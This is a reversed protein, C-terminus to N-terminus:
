YQKLREITSCFFLFNRKILYKPFNQAINKTSLNIHTESCARLLQLILNSSVTVYNKKIHNKKQQHEKIVLYSGQKKKYKTAQTQEIVM